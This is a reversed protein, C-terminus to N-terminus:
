LTEYYGRIDARIWKNTGKGRNRWNSNEITIGNDFRCSDGRVIVYVGKDWGTWVWKGDPLMGNIVVKKYSKM